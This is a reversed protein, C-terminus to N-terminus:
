KIFKNAQLWNRFLAFWNSCNCQVTGAAFGHEGNQFIHLEAPVKLSYLNNYLEVSYPMFGDKAGVIIFVPPMDANLELKQTIKTDPYVLMLFDPRRNLRDIGDLPRNSALPTLNAAARLALHGGASFGGIGIKSTDINWEKARSRAYQIARYADDLAADKSYHRYKLVIAVIGSENLKKAIDYGEKGIVIINYGGGPCIVVAAGTNKEKPPLFVQITPETVFIVLEKNNSTDTKWEEKYTKWPWNNENSGPAGNPWISIENHHRYEQGNLSILTFVLFIISFIKSKM